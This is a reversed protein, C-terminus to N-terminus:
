KLINKNLINSQRELDSISIEGAQWLATLDEHATKVTNLLNNKFQGYGTSAWQVGPAYQDGLTSGETIVQDEVEMKSIADEIASMKQQAQGARANLKEGIAALEQFPYISVYKQPTGVDFRNAM